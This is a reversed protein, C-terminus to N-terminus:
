KLMRMFTTRMKKGLLNERNLRKIMLQHIKNQVQPTASRLEDFWVDFFPKKQAIDKWSLNDWEKKYDRKLQKLAHIQADLEFDSFDIKNFRQLPKISKLEKTKVIRKTINQNHLTDNLWHSLEHYITSKIASPSLENNFREWTDNDLNAKFQKMNEKAIIDVANKNLSINIMKKEPTYNSSDKTVGLYINVPNLINAKKAVKSKLNASLMKGFYWEGNKYYKKLLNRFIEIDKKNFTNIIKKFYKKYILDVDAGIAYTKELLLYQKFKM